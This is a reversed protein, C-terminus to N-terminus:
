RVFPLGTITVSTEVVTLVSCSVSALTEVSM